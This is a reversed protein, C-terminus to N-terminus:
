EQIYDDLNFVFPYSTFWDATVSVREANWVKASSFAIMTPIKGNAPFTTVFEFGSNDEVKVEVNNNNESWGTVNFEAIVMNEDITGQTNIMKSVPEPKSWWDSNGVKIKIPLTGGLARVICKQSGDSFQEVDFVVDNFDIDSEGSGGLDEVMYRKAIIKQKPITAEDVWLILDSYKGGDAASDCRFGWFTRGEYTVEVYTTLPYNEAKFSADKSSTPVAFWVAESPVNGFVIACTHQVGTSGNKVAKGNKKVGMMAIFNNKGGFNAGISYYKDGDAFTSGNRFSAVTRFVYNGTPAWQKINNPDNAAAEIVAKIEDAQKVVTSSLTGQPLPDDNGTAYKWNYGNLYASYSPWRSLTNNDSAGRTAAFSGGKTFDWCQNAAPQGLLNVFSQEYKAVAETHKAQQVNEESYTVEDHSCSTLVVAGTLVTAIALVGSIFYKKM